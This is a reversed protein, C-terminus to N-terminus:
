DEKAKNEWQFKLYQTLIMFPKMNSTESWTYKLEWNASQQDVALWCMLWRISRGVASVDALQRDVTSQSDTYKQIILRDVTLWQTPRRDASLRDVTSRRDTWLRHATPPHVKVRWCSCSFCAVLVIVCKLSCRLTRLLVHNYVRAQINIINVRETFTCTFCFVSRVFAASFYYTIIITTYYYNYYTILLLGECM